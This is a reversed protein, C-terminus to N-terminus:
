CAKWRFVDWLPCLTTQLSTPLVSWSFTIAEGESPWLAEVVSYMVHFLVFLPNINMIKRGTGAIGLAMPNRQRGEKRIKEESAKLREIQKWSPPGEFGETIADGTGDGRTFDGGQIMFQQIVRHFVSGVYGDPKKQGALEIFNKVTKPVTKGFLGIEIKGASEGGIEIDFWVVDTVKPGKAAETEHNPLLLFVVCAVIAGVVLLVRMNRRVFHLM